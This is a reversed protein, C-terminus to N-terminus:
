RARVGRKIMWRGIGYAWRLSIVRWKALTCLARMAPRVWWKVRVEITLQEPVDSRVMGALTAM